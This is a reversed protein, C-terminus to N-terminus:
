KCGMLTKQYVRYRQSSSFPRWECEVPFISPGAPGVITGTFAHIITNPTDKRRIMKAIETTTELLHLLLGLSLNYQM